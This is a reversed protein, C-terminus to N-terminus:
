ERMIYGSDSSPDGMIRENWAPTNHGYRHGLFTRVTVHGCVTEYQEGFWGAPGFGQPWCADLERRQRQLRGALQQTAGNVLDVDLRGLLSAQVRAVLRDNDDGVEVWIHPLVIMAM